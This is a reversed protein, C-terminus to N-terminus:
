PKPKIGSKLKDIYNPRLKKMRFSGLIGRVLEAAIQRGVSRAANKAM